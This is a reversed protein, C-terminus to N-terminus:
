NKVGTNLKFFFLYQVFYFLIDNKESTIEPTKFSMVM